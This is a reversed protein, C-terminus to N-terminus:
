IKLDPIRKKYNIKLKKDFMWFIKTKRLFEKWM